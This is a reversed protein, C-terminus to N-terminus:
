TPTRFSNDVAPIAEPYPREFVSGFYSAEFFALHKVLGLLNLGTRTMPRRVEYEDLGDLKPLVEDRAWRLCQHLQQKAAQAPDDSM